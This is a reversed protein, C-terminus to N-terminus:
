QWDLIEGSSIARLAQDSHVLLHGSANIGACQGALQGVGTQVRVMKGSLLCRDIWCDFWAGSEIQWEGIWHQLRQAVAVLVAYRDVSRRCLSALCTARSQLDRPAASWDIEVNIGIGILWCPHGGTATVAEILIGGLKKGSAYIDNPWKLRLQSSELWDSLAEAVAVGCVLSLLSQSGPDQPADAHGIALTLMLCGEPSWWAHEGRGRGATQRQAVFLAPLQTGTAVSRKAALNTSDVSAFWDIDRIWGLRQLEQETLQQPTPIM